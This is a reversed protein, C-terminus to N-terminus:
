LLTLWKRCLKGIKNIQIANYKEIHMTQFILQKVNYWSLEKDLCKHAYIYQKTILVLCDLITCKESINCNYVIYEYTINVETDYWNQLSRWINNVKPCM